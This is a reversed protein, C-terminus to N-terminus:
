YSVKSVLFDDFPSLFVVPKESASLDMTSSFLFLCGRALFVKPLPPPLDIGVCCRLAEPIGKRVTSVSVERNLEVVSVKKV